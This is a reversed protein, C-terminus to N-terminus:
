LLEAKQRPHVVNQRDVPSIPTRGPYVFSVVLVSLKAAYSLIDDEINSLFILFIFLSTAILQRNTRQPHADICEGYSRRSQHKIM